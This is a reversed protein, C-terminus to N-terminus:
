SHVKLLILGINDEGWAQKALEILATCAHDLSSNQVVEAIQGASVLSWLGDCCLAM